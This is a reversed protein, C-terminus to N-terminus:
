FHLIASKRLDFFVGRFLLTNLYTTKSEKIIRAIKACKKLQRPSITKTFVATLQQLVPFPLLQKLDKWHKNHKRKKRFVHNFLSM